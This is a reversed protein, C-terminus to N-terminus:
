SFSTDSLPPSSLSPSAELGGHGHHLRRGRRLDGLLELFLHRQGLEDEQRLAPQAGRADEM